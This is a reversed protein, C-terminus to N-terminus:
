GTWDTRTAAFNLYFWWGPVGDHTDMDSRPVDNGTGGPLLKALPEGGGIAVSAPIITNDAAQESLFGVLLGHVEGTAPDDVYTAGIRADELTLPIGAFPITVTAASTSFCPATASAVAPSYSVYTTGTIPELCVGSALNTATTAAGPIAGAGLACSTAPPAPCRAGTELAAGTTTAAQDLPRFLNVLSLDLFGDGDGDTTLATEMAGNFSLPTLNTLDTLGFGPVVSYVHPDRLDLDTFRFGTTPAECTLAIRNDGGVTVLVTGAGGSSLTCASGGLSALSVTGPLGPDGQPGPPGQAGAAGPDGQPGRQSWSIASEAKSCGKTARESDYVRLQGTKVDYCGNIVGGAGPIAAGAIGGILATALSGAVAAALLHKRRGRWPAHTISGTDERDRRRHKVRL